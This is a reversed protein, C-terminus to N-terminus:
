NSLDPGTRGRAMLWSYFLVHFVSVEGYFEDKVGVVAVSVVGDLKIQGHLTLVFTM